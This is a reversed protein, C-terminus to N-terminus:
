VVRASLRRSNAPRSPRPSSISAMSNPRKVPGSKLRCRRGLIISGALLTSLIPSPEPVAPPQELRFGKEYAGSQFAVVFDASSFRADGDWDGTSWNADQNTEYLGAQFVHVFDSSDFQGDLNSDGFYTDNVVEIWVRRDETDVVGDQDLDFFGDDNGSRVAESLADIEPYLSKIQYIKGTNANAADFRGRPSIDALFLSDHTAIVGDLHGVQPEDNSIFHFYSRDRLDVAVVPNEENATGGLTFRGHMGVFIGNRLPLPFTQPGFSIDNAGESEVGTAPDPIPLFAV